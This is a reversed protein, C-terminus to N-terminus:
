AGGSRRGLRESVSARIVYPLVKPDDSFRELLEKAGTLEAQARAWWEADREAQPTGNLRELRAFNAALALWQPGKFGSPYNGVRFRALPRGARRWSKLGLETRVVVPDTRQAALLATVDALLLLGHARAKTWADRRQTFYTGTGGLLVGVVIGALGILAQEM